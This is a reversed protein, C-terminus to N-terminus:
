RAGESGAWVFLEQDPLEFDEPKTTLAWFMYNDPTKIKGGTLEEAKHGFKVTDVFLWLYKNTPHSHLSVGNRLRDPFGAEFQPTLRTKGYIVRRDCDLLFPPPQNLTKLLQVNVKSRVGDAGILLAGEEISGDEFRATVIGTEESTTFDVFKKSYSINKELNLGLIGRLVTRDSQFTKFDRPPGPPKTVGGASTNSSASAPNGGTGDQKVEKGKLGMIPGKSEGTIGNGMLPMGGKNLDGTGMKRAVGFMEESLLFKLSEEGFKNHSM